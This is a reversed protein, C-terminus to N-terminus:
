PAVEDLHGDRMLFVRDALAEAQPDHSALVVAIGNRALDAFLRFIELSTESDLSGTPEDAIIVRRDGVVARAIGVRQRQGGSLQRPATM